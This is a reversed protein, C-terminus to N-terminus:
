RDIICVFVHVRIAFLKGCLVHLRICVVFM